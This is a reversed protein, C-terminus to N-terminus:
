SKIGKRDLMPVKLEKVNGGSKIRLEKFQNLYKQLYKFNLILGRKYKEYIDRKTNYKEQAYQKRLTRQTRDWVSRLASKGLIIVPYKNILPRSSPDLVYSQFIPGDLIEKKNSLLTPKFCNTYLHKFLKINSPSKPNMIFKLYEESSISQKSCLDLENHFCKHKKSLHGALTSKGGGSLGVVILKNSEGSEFKDLDISITKGSFLYGEQIINLYSELLM